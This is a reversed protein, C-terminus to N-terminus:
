NNKDFSLLHKNFNHPEMLTKKELIISEIQIKDNHM